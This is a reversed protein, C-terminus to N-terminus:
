ILLILTSMHIDLVNLSDVGQCSPSRNEFDVLQRAAPRQAGAPTGVLSM